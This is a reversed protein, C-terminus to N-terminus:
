RIVVMGDQPNDSPEPRLVGALVAARPTLLQYLDHGNGIGVSDVACTCRSVDHQAEQLTAYPGVGLTAKRGNDLKGTIRIYHTM